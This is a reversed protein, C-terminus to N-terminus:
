HSNSLAATLASLDPQAPRQGPVPEGASTDVDGVLIKLAIGLMM